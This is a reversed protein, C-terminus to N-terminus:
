DKSKIQKYKFINKSFATKNYLKLKLHKIFYYHNILQQKLTSVTIRWVCKGRLVIDYIKCYLCWYFEQLHIRSTQYYDAWVSNAFFSKEMTNRTM